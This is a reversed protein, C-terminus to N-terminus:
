STLVAARPIGQLDPALAKVTWGSEAALSAMASARGFGFEIVLM